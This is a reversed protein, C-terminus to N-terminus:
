TKSIEKDDLLNCSKIYERVESELTIRFVIEIINTKAQLILHSSHRSDVSAQIPVKLSTSRCSGQLTVVM